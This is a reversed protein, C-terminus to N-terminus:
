VIAVAVCSGFAELGWWGQWQEDILVCLSRVTKDCSTFRWHEPVMARSVTPHFVEDSPYFWSYPLIFPYWGVKPSLPVIRACAAIAPSM